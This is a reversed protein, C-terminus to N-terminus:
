IETHILRRRSHLSRECSLCYALSPSASWQVFVLHSRHAGSWISLTDFGIQGYLSCSKLTFRNLLLIENNGLLCLVQYGCQVVSLVFCYHEAPAFSVPHTLLIPSMLDYNTLIQDVLLPRARLNPLTPRPHHPLNPRRSQNNRRRTTTKKERRRRPPVTKSEKM